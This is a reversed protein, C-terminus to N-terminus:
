LNKHGRQRPHSNARTEIDDKIWLNNFAHGKSQEVTATRQSTRGKFKSEGCLQDTMTTYDCMRPSDKHQKSYTIDKTLFHTNYSQALDREQERVIKVSKYTHWLLYRLKCTTYDQYHNKRLFLSFSILISKQLSIKKVSKICYFMQFYWDANVFTKSAIMFCHCVYRKVGRTYSLCCRSRFYVLLLKKFFAQGAEANKELIQRIVYKIGSNKEAWVSSTYDM